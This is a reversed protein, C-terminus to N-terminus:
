TNKRLYDNVKKLIDEESDNVYVKIKHIKNNKDRIPIWITNNENFYDYGVKVLILMLITMIIKSISDM